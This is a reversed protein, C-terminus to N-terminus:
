INSALPFITSFDGFRLFLFSCKLLCCILKLFKTAITLPLAVPWLIPMTVSYLWFKWPPDFADYACAEYTGQEYIERYTWVRTRGGIMGQDLVNLKAARDANEKVWALRRAFGGFGFMKLDRRFSSITDDLGRYWVRPQYLAYWFLFVGLPYLLIMKQWLTM